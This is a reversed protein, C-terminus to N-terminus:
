FTGISQIYNLYQDSISLSYDSASLHVASKEHYHAKHGQYDEIDGEMEEDIYTHTNKGTYDAPIYLDDTFAEFPDEYTEKLYPVCIKKNLGSVTINIGEAKEVMYRKAGLTKFRTYAISHGDEDIMKNESDWVGLPKEVGDITKPRVSDLPLGHYKLATELKRTIIENYRNIYDMHAHTNISKISDTDSYVYDNGFALIGSWLNLRAYATVYIGWPFFLFRNRNGNYKAIVKEFDPLEIGWDENYIVEPKVIDTVIMGYASNVSEKSKLYEIEKGEVDKLTTKDQYLKIISKVFDTPLYGRKYKRFVGIKIKDWEYCREIIQFDVETITTYCDDCSVLRGNNVVPNKVGWCRSVSIYNDLYIKPRLNLFEIDFVCCYLKMTDYFQSMTEINMVEGSSMPFREAIM